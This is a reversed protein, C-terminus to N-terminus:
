VKIFGLSNVLDVCEQETEKDICITNPIGESFGVLLIVQWGHTTGFPIDPDYEFPEQINAEIIRNPNVVRSM